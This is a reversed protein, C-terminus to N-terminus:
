EKNLYNISEDSDKTIDTNLIKLFQIIIDKQANIYTNNSINSTFVDYYDIMWLLLEKGSPNNFVSDFLTKVQLRNM